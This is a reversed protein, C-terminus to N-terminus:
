SDMLRAIVASILRVLFANSHGIAILRCVNCANKYRVRRPSIEATSRRDSLQLKVTVICM